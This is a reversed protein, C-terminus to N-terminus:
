AYAIDLWSDGYMVMFEDDLQDMAARLAGGTGLARPGDISYAVPIGFRNGDRVYDQIQESLYGACIVVRPVRERRLLRLQHAIFPEGAVELLAKPVQKTLGGLRTALGGALLALPPIDNM